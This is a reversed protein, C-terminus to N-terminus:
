PCVTGKMIYHHACQEAPTCARAWCPFGTVLTVALYVVLGICCAAWALLVLGGIYGAPTVGHDPKLFRM